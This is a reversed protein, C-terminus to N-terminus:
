SGAPVVEVKEKVTKVEEGEAVLTIKLETTCSKEGELNGRVHLKQLGGASNSPIEGMELEEPFHRLCDGTDVRATFQRAPGSNYARVWIPRVQGDQVQERSSADLLGSLFSTTENQQWHISLGPNLADDAVLAGAAIVGVGFMAALLYKRKM